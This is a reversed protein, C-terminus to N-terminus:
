EESTQQLLRGKDSPPSCHGKLSIFNNAGGAKQQLLSADIEQLSWSFELTFLVVRDDSPILSLYLFTRVHTFSSNSNHFTLYM